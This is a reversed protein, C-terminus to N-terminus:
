LPFTVGTLAESQSWLREASGRDAAHPEIKAPAPDGRIERIGDPGYYAGGLADPATAAYLIPMAGRAASQGLITFVVKGALRGFFGARDGRRFIDTVAMGPHAPVSLIPSEAARLRRDLELGFMLM